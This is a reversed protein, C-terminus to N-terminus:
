LIGHVSSGPPSCDRPNWLILCIFCLFQAFLCFCCLKSVQIRKVFMVCLKHLHLLKRATCHLQTRCLVLSEFAPVGMDGSSNTTGPSVNDEPKIPDKSRSVSMLPVSYLSWFYARLVQDILKRCIHWYSLTTKEVIITSCYFIWICFFLRLCMNWVM